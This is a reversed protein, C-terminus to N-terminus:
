PSSLSLTPPFSTLITPQPHTAPWWGTKQNNNRKGTQAERRTSCPAEDVTKVSCKKREYQSDHIIKELFRYTTQRDADGKRLRSKRIPLSM